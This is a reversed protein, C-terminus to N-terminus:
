SPPITPSKSMIKTNHDCKPVFSPVSVNWKLQILFYVKLEAKGPDSHLGDTLQCIQEMSAGVCAGECYKFDFINRIFSKVITGNDMRAYEARLPGVGYAWKWVHTTALPSDGNPDDQADVGARLNLGWFSASVEGSFSSTTMTGELELSLPGFGFVEVELGAGAAASIEPIWSPAENSGDGQLGSSDTNDAPNNSVFTYLNSFDPVLRVPDAGTSPIPDESIWRGSSPRYWRIGAKVLGTESDSFFSRWGIYMPFRLRGSVTANGWVDYSTQALKNGSSNVLGVISGFGDVIPFASNPLTAKHAIVSPTRVRLLTGDHDWTLVQSLKGNEEIIVPRGLFYHFRTVVPRGAQVTGTREVLNGVADYLYAIDFGPSSVARLRGAGDYAFESTGPYAATTTNGKSDYTFSGGTSPETLLQNLSNYQNQPPLAAAPNARFMRNGSPDYDSALAPGGEFVIQKLGDRVFSDPSASTIQSLLSDPGYVFSASFLTHSGSLTQISGLQNRANYTYNTALGLTPISREFLQLVLRSAGSTLQYSYDWTAPGDLAASDTLSSPRSLNDLQVAFEFNGTSDKADTLRSEKDYTLAVLFGDPDSRVTMNGALDYVCYLTGPLESDQSSFLCGLYDYENYTVTKGAQQAAGLQWAPYKVTQLFGSNYYSYTTVRAKSIM